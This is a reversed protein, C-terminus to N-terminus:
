EIDDNYRHQKGEEKIWSYSQEDNMRDSFCQRIDFVKLPHSTDRTKAVPARHEDKVKQNEKISNDTQNNSEDDPITRKVQLHKSSHFSTLRCPEVHNRKQRVCM